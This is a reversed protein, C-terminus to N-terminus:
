KVDFSLSGRAQHESDFKPSKSYAWILNVKGKWVAASAPLALELTTKDGVTKVAWSKVVLDKADTYFHGKGLKETFAPKGDQVAGFFLRSNNMVLGGVGLAAYGKTPAEIALYLMDDAALTAGIRVGKWANDYSYEKADFSGDVKPAPAGKTLAAQASLGLGFALALVSAALQRKM